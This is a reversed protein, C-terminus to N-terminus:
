TVAFTLLAGLLPGFASITQLSCGALLRRGSAAVLRCIAATPAEVVAASM